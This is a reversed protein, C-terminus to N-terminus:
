YVLRFAHRQADQLSSLKSFALLLFFLAARFLVHTQERRDGLRRNTIIHKSLQLYWPNISSLYQRGPPIKGIKFNSMDNSWGLLLILLNKEVKLQFITIIVYQSQYFHYVDQGVTIANIIKLLLMNWHSMHSRHRISLLYGNFRLYSQLM